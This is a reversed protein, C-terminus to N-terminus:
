IKFTVLKGIWRQELLSRIEKEYYLANIGRVSRIHKM